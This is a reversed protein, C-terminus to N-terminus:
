VRMTNAPYVATMRGDFRTAGAPPLSMDRAQEESVVKALTRGDLQIYTVTQIRPQQNDSSPVHSEQHYGPAYHNLNLDPPATSAAWPNLWHMWWPLMVGNHQINDLPTKGNPDKGQKLWDPLLNDIAHELRELNAAAVVSAAAVGMIFGAPGVLAAMATAAATGIAITGLAIALAGLAVAIEGIIKVAEPHKFAENELYLIGSTLAKLLGIAPQVLPAGLAQMLGEWAEEFDKINLKLSGNQLINFQDTGATKDFQGGFKDVQAWNTYMFSFLRQETVPLSSLAQLVAADGAYGRRSM